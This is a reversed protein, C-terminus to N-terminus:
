AAARYRGHQQEHRENMAPSQTLEDDALGFDKPNRALAAVLEAEGMSIGCRAAIGVANFGRKAFRMAENYAPAVNPASRLLKVEERLTQLEEHLRDVALNLRQQDAEINRLKLQSAFSDDGAKSPIGNLPFAFGVSPERAPLMVSRPQKLQMLQLLAVVLYVAAIGACLLIADHLGPAATEM